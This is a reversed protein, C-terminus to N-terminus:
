RAGRTGTSGRRVVTFEVVNERVIYIAAVAKAFRPTPLITLAPAAPGSPLRRAWGAAPLPPGWGAACWAARDAIESLLPSARYRQWFRPGM